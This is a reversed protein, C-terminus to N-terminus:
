WVEEGVEGTVFNVPPGVLFTTGKVHAYYHQLCRRLQTIITPKAGTMYINRYGYAISPYDTWSHIFPKDPRWDENVHSAKRMVPLMAENLRDLTSTIKTDTDILLIALDPALETARQLFNLLEREDIQEPHASKAEIYVLLPDLWALTDFDGGSPLGSLTVAWAASGHLERQCLQAVYWELTPGFNDIPQTSIVNDGARRVANVSALMDIYENAADGAILHLKVVEVGTERGGLIARAVKRFSARSMLDLYREEWPKLAGFGPDFPFLLKSRDSHEVLVLGRRRLTTELLDQSAVMAFYLNRGLNDLRSLHEKLHREKLETLQKEVDRPNSARMPGAVNPTSLLKRAASLYSQVGRRRDFM